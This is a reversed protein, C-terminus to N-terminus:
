GWFFEILCNLKRCYILFSRKAKLNWDSRVVGSCSTWNMVPPHPPLLWTGKKSASRAGDSPGRKVRATFPLRPWERALSTSPGYTHPYACATATSKGAVSQQPEWAM